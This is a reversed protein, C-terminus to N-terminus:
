IINRKIAYVGIGLIAIFGVGLTVYLIAESGTKVALMVPAIDIDDEGDNRNGPTSDVDHAGHDNYDKSIEATNIKVGMNNADNVWTLVITVEASEGPNLLTNAM